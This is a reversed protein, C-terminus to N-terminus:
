TSPTGKSYTVSVPVAPVARAFLPYVWFPTSMEVMRCGIAPSFKYVAGPVYVHVHGLKTVFTHIRVM